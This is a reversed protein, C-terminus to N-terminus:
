KRNNESTSRVRSFLSSFLFVRFIFRMNCESTYTLIYMYFTFFRRQLGNFHFNHIKLRIITKLKRVSFCWQNAILKFHFVVESSLYFQCYWVSHVVSHHNIRVEAFIVNLMFNFFKLIIRVHSTQSVLPNYERYERQETCKPHHIM